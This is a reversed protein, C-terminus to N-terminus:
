QKSISIAKAAANTKVFYIGTPHESISIVNGSGQKIKIGLPSYVSWELEKSLHFLGTSPNPYVTIKSSEENPNEVGLNCNHVTFPSNNKTNSGITNSVTLSVAKIGETGYIVTHPGAGTATAPQAGEGFSWLYNDVTGISVSTFLVPANLCGMQPSVEYDAIPATTSGTLVFEM